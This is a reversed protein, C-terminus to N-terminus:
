KDIKIFESNLLIDYEKESIPILKKAGCKACVLMIGGETPFPLIMDCGCHCSISNEDAMKQLQSLIDYVLMDDGFFEDGMESLIDEQRKVAEKVKDSSGIFLLEFGTNPCTYSFFDKNWFASKNIMIEHIEGCFDCFVSIKYKDHYESVSGVNENCKKDGCNLGVAKTGSFDFINLKKETVASCEPCIYAISQKFNDIM